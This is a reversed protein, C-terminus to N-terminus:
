LTAGNTEIIKKYEWASDKIIRKGAAYDVYILGFRPEYGEAWEFNDMISWYQYGLVPYGESVARKLTGLYRKIFDARQPDHVGGDLCVFDNDAMGNETIMIPLKYREHVFRVAWYMVREDVIWGMSSRPMGPAGTKSDGGWDAVNFPQYLNLGIFDLPQAIEAMDKESSRYVGYAKVSKGSFLPDMWWRNSMLGMGTEISKRRAEEVKEPTEDEPVFCGSAMAIGVKPPLKAYQHITKVSQAHALMCNRTLKSLALYNHKFPAHLGQMYGNMIFCQPENMPMWWKVRDSLADVVVKTYDRFLPIIKKSMWGGKKYVWVPTDWHFITVLPEIGAAILEDVLDSYFQIGEPNVKGEEPIVRSWSISFRYSKLGLQKMLQVDEKWHHYHDCSVHCNDGNKIRKAPAVDWISPTRGGENWGGEVQASASAAGWLFDKPFVTESM